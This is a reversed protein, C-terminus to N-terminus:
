SHNFFTGKLGYRSSINVAKCWENYSLKEEPLCTKFTTKPHEIHKKPKQGFLRLMLKEM